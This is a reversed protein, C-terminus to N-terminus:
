RYCVNGVAPAESLGTVRIDGRLAAAAGNCHQEFTAWFRNIVAGNSSIDAEHVDFRGTIRGCGRGQGAVNLMPRAPDPFPGADEYAGVGLPLGEPAGIIVSWAEVSIMEVLVQSARCHGRFTTNAAILRGVRGVGVVDGPESVYSFFQPLVAWVPLVGDIPRAPTTARIVVDRDTAVPTTLVPFTATEVGTAVTVTSPVAVAADGSSLSVQVGGSSAPLTLRVTGSTERGGLVGAPTLSVTFVAPPSPGVPDDPFAATQQDCAVLTCAAAVAWASSKM